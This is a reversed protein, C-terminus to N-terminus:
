DADVSDGPGPQFGLEYYKGSKKDPRARGTCDM